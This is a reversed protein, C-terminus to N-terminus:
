PQSSLRGFVLDARRLAYALLPLGEGSSFHWFAVSIVNKKRKEFAIWQVIFRRTSMAQGILDLLM